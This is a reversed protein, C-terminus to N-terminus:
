GQRLAIITAPENRREDEFDIQVSVLEPLHESSFWDTRWGAVASRGVRGFYKFRIERVGSLVVVARPSAGGLDDNKAATAGAIVGVVLDSGNRRVSMKHPGGRLSRGESLGVFLLAEQHGEFVISTDQDGTSARVPLASSILASIVQIAADTESGIGNARDADFARRGVSLGGVLFGVLVVLVALSLLLEIMTLGQEGLRRRAARAHRRNRVTGRM